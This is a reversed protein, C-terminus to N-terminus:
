ISRNMKRKVPKKPTTAAVFEQSNNFYCFRAFHAVAFTNWFEVWMDNAYNVTTDLRVIGRYLQNIDIPHETQNGNIDSEKPPPTDCCVPAQQVEDCHFDDDASIQLVELTEEHSTTEECKPWYSGSFDAPFHKDYDRMECNAKEIEALEIKKANDVAKLADKMGLKTRFMPTSTNFEELLEVKGFHVVKPKKHVNKLQM